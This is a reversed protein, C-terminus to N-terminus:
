LCPAMAQATSIDDRLKILWDGKLRAREAYGGHHTEGLGFGNVVVRDGAQFRPDESRLVKGALDIGPVHRGCISISM